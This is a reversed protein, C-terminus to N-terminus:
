EDSDKESSKGPTGALICVDPCEAHDLLMELAALIAIRATDLELEVEGPVVQLTFTGTSCDVDITVRFRAKHSSLERMAFVPVEASFDEPLNTSTQAVLDTDISQRAHQQAALTSQIKQFNISRFGAVLTPDVCGLLEHRLLRVLQQQNLKQGKQLAVITLWQPAPTLALKVWSRRLPEDTFFVLRWNAMDLWINPTRPEGAENAESGDAHWRAYAAAFDAVSLVTHRRPPPVRPTALIEHSGDAKILLMQEPDNPFAKIEVPCHAAKTATDQILKLTEPPLTLM